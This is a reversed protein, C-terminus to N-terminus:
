RYLRLVSYAEPFPICLEGGAMTGVKVNIGGICLIDCAIIHAPGPKSSSQEKKMM